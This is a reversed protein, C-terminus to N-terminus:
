SAKRTTQYISSDTATAFTEISTRGALAETMLPLIYEDVSKSGICTSVGVTSEFFASRLLWDRDNLLTTMLSFVEATRSRGLFVCLPVINSMLARKVSAAPDILLQNIQEQIQMQLDHLSGDYSIQSTPMLQQVRTCHACSVEYPHTDLDQTRSLKFTGDAKMAQTMDLFRQGSEALTALSQAFACRVSEDMDTALPTVNPLIYETFVTANAPTITETLRLTETLTRLAAVRVTPAENALSAVIYPLLWDLKTEDTLLRGIYLLM